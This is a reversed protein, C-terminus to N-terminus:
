LLYQLACVLPKQLNMGRPNAGQRSSLTVSTEPDLFSQQQYKMPYKQWPVVNWNFTWIQLASINKYM